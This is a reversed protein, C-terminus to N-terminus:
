RMAAANQHLYDLCASAALPPSYLYGQFETCGLEDLVRQQERTEVYEALVRIGSAEGLQVVSAIIDRCNKDSVVDRTLVGDLKITAFRFRRIYLMSSYGMGFDDMELHIGLNELGSLTEISLADDPVHQSETLELGIEHAALQNTALCDAVHAVLGPDRLQLASFNVSVRLAEIGAQKWDRLQRCATAITWRGLPVIRQSEELLACVVAPSILGFQQHQWRLLAEVGVVRGNRDHQHQYALYVRASGVDSMFEHVLKRAAHGVDDHRNLVSAHQVKIKEIDAVLRVIDNQSRVRRRRAAVCVFPAYILTSAALNVLQLAGGHWSGSNLTGALVPPTMWPVMTTDLAVWGSSLCLFSLAIQLLPAFVFPLLYVPNFIIPLGFILLENINFLSPALAYRAVRAGEGHRAFVLIALLLGLTAGSGGINVYLDFFRPSIVLTQASDTPAALVIQYVGELVHPGHLGVFWLLQNLLGLVLLGPLRSGAADDLAMLGNALYRCLDFSLLSLGQSFLLFIVVTTMLPAISTLAFHLSPDFDYTRQGFRLRRSHAFLLYLETSLIAVIIAPLVSRAGLMWQASPMESFRTVIFFNVVALIAVLPPSIEALRKDRAEIALIHSILVLLCLALIGNSANSVLMAMNQWESGSALTKAPLVAAYPFSGLLLAIAGVFVVPLLLILSDRIARLWRNDPLHQLRDPDRKMLFVDRM